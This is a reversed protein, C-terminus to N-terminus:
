ADCTDLLDHLADIEPQDASLDWEHKITIWRTAYDCQYAKRPKWAAPDDDGKASNTPGDVALLNGLTNAYQERTQEDWSAAGSRWAEALPVIHDIQIAQAQSPDKLNDFELHQGTYPDVWEGAVVDHDCAGDSVVSVAGEVADRLLVDDRQNCGNGDVDSWATGFLDRDYGPVEVREIVELDDLLGAVEDGTTVTSTSGPAASAQSSPTSDVPQTCAGVGMVVASLLGAVGVGRSLRNIGEATTTM